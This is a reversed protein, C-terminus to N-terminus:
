KINSKKNNKDIKFITLAVLIANKLMYFSKIKFLYKLIFSPRLYFKKYVKNYMTKLETSSITPLEFVPHALDYDDWDLTKLYNKEKAWEFLKTGPYPTTINFVALDPNINIAFRLTDNITTITEGPNGLMFAARVEIKSEKTWSIANKVKVLDIKKNINKLIENSASEIGYMIQHCGAKKMLVLLDKDIFDVRAFCSWSIELKNKILGNCIEIVRQKSATFTDDYFSIEKIGYKKNLLFIEDLVRQASHLRLTKGFLNFCFTCAGPCGRSTVIGSGPLQKYAGIAPKYKEMPLLHYAPIPIKDINEILPRNPNHIISSKDKYSLGAIKPIPVEDLLEKFTEEGEGRVVFDIYSNGLAEDPLISPHVGGLIIKTNELTLQKILSAIKYVNKILPTTASIAIFDYQSFDYDNLKNASLKLAHMDLIKVNHGELELYSAISALGLPPIISSIASWINDNEKYWPPNIM